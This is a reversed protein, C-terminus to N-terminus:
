LTWSWACISTMSNRFLVIQLLPALQCWGPDSSSVFPQDISVDSLDFDLTNINMVPEPQNHLLRNKVFLEQRATNIFSKLQIAKMYLKDLEKRANKLEEYEVSNKLYEGRTGVNNKVFEKEAKRSIQALMIKKDDLSNIMRDNKQQEQVVSNLHSAMNEIERTLQEHSYTPNINTPANYSNDQKPQPQYKEKKM